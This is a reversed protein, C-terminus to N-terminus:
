CSTLLFSQHGRKGGVAREDTIFENLVKFVVTYHDEAVRFIAHRFGCPRKRIAIM